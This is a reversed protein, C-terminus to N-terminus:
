RATVRPEFKDKYRGVKDGRRFQQQSSPAPHPSGVTASFWPSRQKEKHKKAEDEEHAKSFAVLSQMVSTYGKKSAEPLM